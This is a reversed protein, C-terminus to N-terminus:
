EKMNVSRFYREDMEIPRISPELRQQFHEGWPQSRMKLRSLSEGRRLFHLRGLGEEASPHELARAEAECPVFEAKIKRKSETSSPDIKDKQRITVQLLNLLTHPTYITYM